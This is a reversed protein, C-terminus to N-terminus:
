IQSSVTFSIATNSMLLKSSPISMESFLLEQHVKIFVGSLIELNDRWYLHPAFCLYIFHLIFLIILYFPILQLQDEMNEKEEGRDQSERQKM